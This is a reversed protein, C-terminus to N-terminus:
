SFQLCMCLCLFLNQIHWIEERLWMLTPFDCHSSKENNLITYCCHLFCHPLYLLFLWLQNIGGDVSQTLIVIRSLSQVIVRSPFSTTSQVTFFFNVGINFLACWNITSSLEKRDTAFFHTRLVYLSEQEDTKLLFGLWIPLPGSSTHSVSPKLAPHVLNPSLCTAEYFPTMTLGVFLAFSFNMLQLLDSALSCWLFVRSGSDLVFLLSKKPWPLSCDHFNFCRTRKSPKSLFDQDSPTQLCIM